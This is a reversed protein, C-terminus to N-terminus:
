LSTPPYLAARDSEEPLQSVQLPNVMSFFPFTATSICQYILNIFSPPLQLRTLATAIFDWRLRDFAKALDLKLLFAKNTWSKLTFSHIIEQTIIINTSIHRNHIFATQSNDINRPLHLKLREALTKSIIKYAVNCLSITRFDQPIVPHLNKLILVLYTQNIDPHMFAETYFSTVLELVDRGIWSWASKYFAANLGDPGPSANSRMSKIISYLEQMTPISNTFTLDLHNIQIQSNSVNDSPIAGANQNSIQSHNNSPVDGAYSQNTANNVAFIDHFYNLLTGAIQDRTTSDTGDPNQLFTIRDKRTRKVIAQHFFKTNRDGHLAWDKKARQLHFQEDKDLLQEHQHALHAQLNYDQLM